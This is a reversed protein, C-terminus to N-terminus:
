GTKNFILVSVSTKSEPETETQTKTETLTLGDPSFAFHSVEGIRTNGRAIKGIVDFSSDDIRRFSLTIGPALAAERGDISLRKDERSPQSTLSTVIDAEFAIEQSTLTIKVKERLIAFDPVGPVLIKGFSSKPVDLTWTGIWGSAKFPPQGRLFSVGALFLSAAALTGRMPM